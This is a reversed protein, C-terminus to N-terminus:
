YTPMNNTHNKLYRQNPARDEKCVLEHVGVRDYRGVTQIVDIAFLM